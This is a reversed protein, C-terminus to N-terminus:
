CQTYDNLAKDEPHHGAVDQFYIFLYIGGGGWFFVFLM